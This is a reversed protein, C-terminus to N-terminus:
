RVLLGAAIGAATELKLIGNIAYYDIAFNHILQRFNVLFGKVFHPCGTMKATGMAYVKM